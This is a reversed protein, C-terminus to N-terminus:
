LDVLNKLTVFAEARQVGIRTGHNRTERDQYDVWSSGARSFESEYCSLAQIKREWHREELTVYTTPWFPVTGVYWNVAFGFLRPVRRSAQVAMTNVRQHVPHTDGPWHTLITDISFDRIADLIRCTNADTVALDMTDEDYTLLKYGLTEAARQAESLAQERSRVVSGDPAAYGSHTFVLSIVRDGREVLRAVTGGCGLELDDHHAVVVLLNLVLGRNM